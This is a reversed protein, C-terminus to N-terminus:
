EGALKSVAPSPSHEPLSFSVTTGEGKKSEINLKGNNKEVFEKVLTLGFGSGTENETGKTSENNGIELLKGLTKEDMGVGNDKVSLVVGNNTSSESTVIIKGNRPTFKLANSFLNRIVTTIMKEDAYVIKNEPVDLEFKIEKEEAVPKLPETGQQILYNIEVAEPEVKRRNSQVQAWQLLNEMLNHTTQASSLISNLYKKKTNDEIEDYDSYVIDLLSIISNLPGRLDHSIISFLKNKSDIADQLERNTKELDRTREEIKQELQENSTKLEAILNKNQKQLEYKQLANEITLLLERPDWPKLIYQYIGCRNIADIILEVDAYATIVLRPIQPYQQYAKELFEIGSMEPMRHDSIVLDVENDQLIKLGELSSTTTIVRYTKYFASKFITLNNKEDDIYLITYRRDQM